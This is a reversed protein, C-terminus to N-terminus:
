GNALVAFYQSLFSSVCIKDIFFHPVNESYSEIGCWVVFGSTLHYKQQRGRREGYLLCLWREERPLTGKRNRRPGDM